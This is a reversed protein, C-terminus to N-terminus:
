RRDGPPGADRAPAAGADDAPTSAAGRPLPPRRGRPGEPTASAPPQTEDPHPQTIQRYILVSVGVVAGAVAALAVRM